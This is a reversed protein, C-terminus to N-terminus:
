QSEIKIWAATEDDDARHMIEVKRGVECDEYTGSTNEDRRKTRDLWIHTAKTVRMTRTGSDDEVTISHNARDVAVIKGVYSYNDSVGPSYGIPIYRETTQQAYVPMAHAVLLILMASLTNLAFEKINM